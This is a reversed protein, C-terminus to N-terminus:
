GGEGNKINDSGVIEYGQLEIKKRSIPVYKLDIDCGPSPVFGMKNIIAEPLWVKYIDQGVVSEDEPAGVCKLSVGRVQDGNEGKFDCPRYGVVKVIM